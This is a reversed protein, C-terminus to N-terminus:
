LDAIEVAWPAQYRDTELVDPLRSTNSTFNAAGDNLLFYPGPIFDGGNNAVLVDIDGDGDVDGVAANHTFGTTDDPLRDSADTYGESTWLLLQNNWGPFPPADYGHDAIFFDNWEM